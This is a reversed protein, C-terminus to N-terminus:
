MVYVQLYKKVKQVSELWSSRADIDQEILSILSNALKSRSSDTIDEALNAYFSSDNIQEDDTHNIEYVTSGDELEEIPTNELSLSAALQQNHM